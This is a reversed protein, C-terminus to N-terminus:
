RRKYRIIISHALRSTDVLDIAYLYDRLDDRMKRGVREAIVYHNPTKGRKMKQKVLSRYMRVWEHEHLFITNRVMAKESHNGLGYEHIAAIYKVPKKGQEPYTGSKDDWGVVITKPANKLKKSNRNITAQKRRISKKLKTVDFMQGM